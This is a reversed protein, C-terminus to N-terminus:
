RLFRDGHERVWWALMAHFSGGFTKHLLAEYGMSCMAASGLDMLRENASDNCEVLMAKLCSEPLQQEMAVITESRNALPHGGPLTVNCQVSEADGAHAAAAFFVAAFGTTWCWRM